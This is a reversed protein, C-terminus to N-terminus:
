AIDGHTMREITAGCKAILMRGAADMFGELDGRSKAKRMKEAETRAIHQHNDILAVHWGKVSNHQASWRKHLLSRGKHQERKAALAIADEQTM